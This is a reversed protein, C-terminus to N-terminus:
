GSAFNRSSCPGPKCRSVSMTKLDRSPGPSSVKARDMEVEERLNVRGGYSILRDIRGM